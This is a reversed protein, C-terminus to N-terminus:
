QTYQADGSHSYPYIGVWANTVRKKDGQLLEVLIKMERKNEKERSVEGSDNHNDNNESGVRKHNQYLSLSFQPGTSLSPSLAILDYTGSFVCWFIM